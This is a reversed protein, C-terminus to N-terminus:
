KLPGLGALRRAPFPDLAVIACQVNCGARPPANPMRAGHRQSQRQAHRGSPCPRRCLLRRRAGGAGFFAGSFGRRARSFAHRCCGSRSSRSRLAGPHLEALLRRPTVLSLSPLSSFFSSLMQRVCWSRRSPLVPMTSTDAATRCTSPWSLCCKMTITGSPMISCAPM